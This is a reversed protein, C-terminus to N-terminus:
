ASLSPYKEAVIKKIEIKLKEKVSEINLDLKWSEDNLNIKIDSYKNDNFTIVLTNNDSYSTNSKNLTLEKKFFTELGLNNVTWPFLDNLSYSKYLSTLLENKSTELKQNKNYTDERENIKKNLETYDIANNSIIDRSNITWLEKNSNQYRISLYPNNGVKVKINKSKLIDNKNINNVITNILDEDLPKDKNEIKTIIQNLIIESNFMKNQKSLWVRGNNFFNYTEWDNSLQYTITENRKFNNKAIDDKFKEINDTEIKAITNWFIDKSTTLKAYESVKTTNSIKELAFNNDKGEGIFKYWDGPWLIKTWDENIKWLKQQDPYKKTRELVTKESLYKIKRKDINNKLNPIDLKSINDINDNVESKIWNELWGLARKTQNGFVQDAEVKATTTTDKGYEKATEYKITQSLIQILFALDNEKPSKIINEIWKPTPVIIDDKKVEKAKLTWSNDNKEVHENFVKAIDSFKMETPPTTKDWDVDIKIATEQLAKKLTDPTTDKLKEIGEKEDSSLKDNIEIKDLIESKINLDAM